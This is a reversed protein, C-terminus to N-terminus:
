SPHSRLPSLPTPLLPPDHAPRHPQTYDNPGICLSYRGRLVALAEDLVAQRDLLPLRFSRLAFKQRRSLSEVTGEYGAAASSLLNLSYSM